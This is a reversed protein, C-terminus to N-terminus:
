GRTAIRWADYTLMAALLAVVLVWPWPSRLFRRTADPWRRHLWPWAALAIAGAYAVYAFPNLAWADAWRGHGIALVGRTLGCGPCPLGTVHLFPCRWILLPSEPPVASALGLALLGLSALALGLGRLIAAAPPRRPQESSSM